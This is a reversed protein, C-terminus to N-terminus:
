ITYYNTGDSVIKVADMPNSLVLSAVGDILGSAPTVTVVNVSTDKKKVTIEYGGAAAVSAATPPTITIAGASADALIVRDTGAMTYNATKTLISSALSEAITHWTAGGDTTWEMRAFKENYRIQYNVDGFLNGSRQFYTTPTQDIDPSTLLVQTAAVHIAALSIRGATLAPVVPSGAPTGPNVNGSVNVINDLTVPTNDIKFVGTNAGLVYSLEIRDYRANTPDAGGLTVQIDDWTALQGDPFFAAGKAIKVTLGSVVTVQGGYIIGSSKSGTLIERFYNELYLAFLGFDQSSRWLYSDLGAFNMKGIQRM